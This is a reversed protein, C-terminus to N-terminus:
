EPLVVKGSKELEDIDAFYEKRMLAIKEANSLATDEAV